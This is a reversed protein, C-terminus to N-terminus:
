QQLVTSGHVPPCVNFSFQIEYKSKHHLSPGCSQHVGYFLPWSVELTVNKVHSIILSINEMKCYKPLTIFANELKLIQITFLVDIKCYKFRNKGENSPEEYKQLNTEHLWSPSSTLTCPLLLLLSRPITSHFCDQSGRACQLFVKYRIKLVPFFLSSIPFRAM